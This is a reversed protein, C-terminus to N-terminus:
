FNKAYGELIRDENTMVGLRWGFGLRSCDSMRKTDRLVQLDAWEPHKVPSCDRLSLCWRQRPLLVMQKRSAWDARLPLAQSAWSQRPTIRVWLCSPKCM